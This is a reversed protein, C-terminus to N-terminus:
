FYIFDKIEVINRTATNKDSRRKMLTVLTEMVTLTHALARGWPTNQM